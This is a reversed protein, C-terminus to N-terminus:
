ARKLQIKSDGALQDKFRRHRLPLVFLMKPLLSFSVPPFFCLIEAAIRIAFLIKAHRNPTVFPQNSKITPKRALASR